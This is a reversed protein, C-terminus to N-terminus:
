SPGKLCVDMVGGGCNERRGAVSCENGKRRQEWRRWEVWVERLVGM